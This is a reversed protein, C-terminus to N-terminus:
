SNSRNKILLTSVDSGGASTNEKVTIKHKNMAESFSMINGNFMTTNANDSGNGVGKFRVPILQLKKFTWPSDYQVSLENYTLQAKTQQICLFFLLVFFIKKTHLLLKLM